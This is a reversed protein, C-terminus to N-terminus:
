GRKQASHYEAWAKKHLRDYRAHERTAIRDAEEFGAAAARLGRRSGTRIWRAAVEGLDNLADLALENAADVRHACKDFAAHKEVM